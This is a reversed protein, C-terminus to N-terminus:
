ADEVDMEDDVGASGEGSDDDGGNEGDGDETAVTNDLLRPNFGSIIQIANGLVFKRPLFYMHYRWSPKESPVSYDEWSPGAHAVDMIAVLVSWPPIIIKEAVMTKDVETPLDKDFRWLLGFTTHSGRIVWLPSEDAETSIVFLGPKGTQTAMEQVSMTWGDAHFTQRAARLTILARGGTNPIHCDDGAGCVDLLRVSLALRLDLLARVRAFEVSDEKELAEMVGRCTTMYRGEPKAKEHNIKDEEETQNRIYSFLRDPGDTASPDADRFLGRWYNYLGPIADKNVYVSTDVMKRVRTGDEPVEVVGPTDMALRGNGLPVTSPVLADATFGELICFGNSRLETRKVAFYLKARWEERMATSWNRQVTSAGEIPTSASPRPNGSLVSNYAATWHVLHHVTRFDAATTVVHSRHEKPIYCEGLLQRYHVADEACWQSPSKAILNFAQETSLAKTSDKPDNYGYPLEVPINDVFREDNDREDDQGDRVVNRAERVQRRSPRVPPEIDDDLDISVTSRPTRTQTPTRPPPTVVSDDVDVDSDGRQDVEIVASDDDDSDFVVVSEDNRRKKSSRGQPSSEDQRRRVRPIRVSSRPNVRAEFREEPTQRRFNGENRVKLGASDLRKKLDNVLNTSTRAVTTAPLPPNGRSQSCLNFRGVKTIAFLRVPQRASAVTIPMTYVRAIDLKSLRACEVLVKYVNMCLEFFSSAIDDFRGTVSDTVRCKLCGLAFLLPENKMRLIDGTMHSVGLRPGCANCIAEFEKWLDPHPAFRMAIQAYRARQRERVMGFSLSKRIAARPITDWTADYEECILIAQSVATHITDAFSPRLVASSLNNLVTGIQVCELNSLTSKRLDRRMYLIVEQFNEMFMAWDPDNPALNDRIAFLRHAGDVLRVTFTSGPLNAGAELQVEANTDKVHVIAVAIPFQEAKYRNANLSAAMADVHERNIGRVTQEGVVIDSPRVRVRLTMFANLDNHTEALADVRNSGEDTEEPMYFETTLDVVEDAATSPVDEM